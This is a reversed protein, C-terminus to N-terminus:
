NGDALTLPCDFKAGVSGDLEPLALQHLNSQLYGYFPLLLLVLLVLVTSLSSVNNNNNCKAHTTSSAFHITTEWTQTDTHTDTQRHTQGRDCAWV